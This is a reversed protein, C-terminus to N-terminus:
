EKSALEYFVTHQDLAALSRTEGLGVDEVRRRCGSGDTVSRACVSEQLLLSRGLAELGLM